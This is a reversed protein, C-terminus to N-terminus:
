SPELAKPPAGKVASAERPSKAIRMLEIVVEDSVQHFDLYFSGIAGFLATTELCIIEDAERRLEELADPPAVPVALVIRQPEDRRIARLAARKTAGTAIGDDVVIATRGSVTARQRGALYLQRRREIEELQRASEEAIYSDPVDLAAKVDENIVTQPESGDVVAALALEPQWPVGIKRVLVLDLPADLVKAVEFGIPVGGRPLALVISEEGRFPLLREALQLAAERRNAFITM